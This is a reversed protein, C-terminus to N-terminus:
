RILAKSAAEIVCWVNDPTRPERNLEPAIVELLNDSSLGVSPISTSNLVTTSATRQAASNCRAIISRSATPPSSRPSVAPPPCQEGRAILERVFKVCFPGFCWQSRSQAAGSESGWCARHYGGVLVSAGNPSWLLTERHFPDAAQPTPRRPRGIEQAPSRRTESSAERGNVRTPVAPRPTRRSFAASELPHSAWGAFRELRFCDSCDHLYRFPQLRRNATV